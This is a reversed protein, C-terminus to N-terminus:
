NTNQVEPPPLLEARLKPPTATSHPRFRHRLSLHTVTIDNLMSSSPQGLPLPLLTAQYCLCISMSSTCNRVTLSSRSQHQWNPYQNPKGRRVLNRTAPQWLSHIFSISLCSVSSTSAPWCSFHVTLIGEGPAGKDCKFNQWYTCRSLKRYATLQASGDSFGSCAASPLPLWYLYLILNPQKCPGRVTSANGEATSVHPHFPRGALAGPSRLCACAPVPQCFCGSGVFSPGCRVARKMLWMSMGDARCDSMM